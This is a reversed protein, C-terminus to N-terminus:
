IPTRFSGSHARVGDHLLSASERRLVSGHSQHPCVGAITYM